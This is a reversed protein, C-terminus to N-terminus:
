NDIREGGGPTAASFGSTVKGRVLMADLHNGNEQRYDVERAERPKVPSLPCQNM